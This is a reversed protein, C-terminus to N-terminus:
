DGAESMTLYLRKLKVCADDASRSYSGLGKGTSAAPSAPDPTQQNLFRIFAIVQLSEALIIQDFQHQPQLARLLCRAIGRSSM